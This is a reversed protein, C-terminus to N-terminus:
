GEEDAPYISGGNSLPQLPQLKTFGVYDLDKTKPLNDASQGLYMLAITLNQNIQRLETLYSAFVFEVINRLWKKIM